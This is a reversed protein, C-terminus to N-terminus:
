YVYSHLLSLKQAKNYIYDKAKLKIKINRHLIHKQM